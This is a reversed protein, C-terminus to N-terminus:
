KCINTGPGSRCGQDLFAETDAPKQNRKLDAVSESGLFLTIYTILQKCQVIFNQAVVFAHVGQPEEPGPNDQIVSTMM